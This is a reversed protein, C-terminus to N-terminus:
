KVLVTVQNLIMIEIIQRFTVTSKNKAIEDADFLQTQELFM